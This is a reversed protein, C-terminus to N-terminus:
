AVQEDGVWGADYLFTAAEHAWWVDDHKKEFVHPPNFELFISFVARATESGKTTLRYNTDMKNFTARIYRKKLLDTIDAYLDRPFVNMHDALEQLSLGCDKYCFIYHLIQWKRFQWKKDKRLRLEDCVEKLEHLQTGKDIEYFVNRYFKSLTSYGFENRARKKWGDKEGDKCRFKISTM